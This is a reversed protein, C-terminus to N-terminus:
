GDASFDITYIKFLDVSMSFVYFLYTGPSQSTLINESALQASAEATSGDPYTYRIFYNIKSSLSHHKINYQETCQWFSRAFLNDFLCTAHSRAISNCFERLLSFLKSRRFCGGRGHKFSRILARGNYLLPHNRKM